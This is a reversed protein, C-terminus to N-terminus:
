EAVYLLGALLTLEAYQQVVLAWVGWGALAAAIAAAVGALQATIRSAGLPGLRLKRELLAQHQAGLAAVVSTGALAWTLDRLPVAAAPQAYLQGLLPALLAAAGAAAFGLLVNLWFLLSTEEHRIEPRQVTAVNLGLAAFIRLFMVLPLIMGVLGYDGPVLLRLLIALGVLSILQSALQAVALAVASRRVSHKLEAAPMELPPNALSDSM